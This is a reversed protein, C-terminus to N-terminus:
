DEDEPEQDAQCYAWLDGDQWLNWIKGNEKCWAKSLILDWTDWYLDHDPGQRLVAADNPNVHWAEMDYNKAFREPVYVGMCGDILLEANRPVEDSM